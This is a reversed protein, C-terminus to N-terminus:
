WGSINEERGSAGRFLPLSNPADSEELFKIPSITGIKVPMYQPQILGVCRTAADIPTLVM